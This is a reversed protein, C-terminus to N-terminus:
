VLCHLSLARNIVYASAVATVAASCSCSCFRGVVIISSSNDCDLMLEVVMCLFFIALMVVGRGFLGGGEGKEFLGVGM